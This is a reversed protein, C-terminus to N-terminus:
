MGAPLRERRQGVEQMWSEEGGGRAPNGGVGEVLSLAPSTVSRNVGSAMGIKEVVLGVLGGGYILINEKLNM